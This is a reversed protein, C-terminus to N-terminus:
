SWITSLPQCPTGHSGFLTNMTQLWNGMRPNRNKSRRLPVDSAASAVAPYRAAQSFFPISSRCPWMMEVHITRCSKLASPEVTPKSAQAPDAM